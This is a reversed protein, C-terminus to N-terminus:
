RFLVWAAWAALMAKACLAIADDSPVREMKRPYKNYGLLFLYKAEQICNTIFFFWVVVKMKDV